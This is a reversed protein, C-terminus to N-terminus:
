TDSKGTIKFNKLAAFPGSDHQPAISEGQRDQEAVLEPVEGEPCEGMPHRAAIPLALLLEEEVLSWLSATEEPAVIWPEYEDPWRHIESEARMLGMQTQVELEIDIPQLCRQCALQLGAKIHGRAFYRGQEDCDFVLEVEAVGAKNFIEQGLQPMRAFPVRGQLGRGLQALQWPM